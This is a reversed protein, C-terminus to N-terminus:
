GQGKTAEYIISGYDLTKEDTQKAHGKEEDGSDAIGRLLTSLTIDREDFMRNNNKYAYLFYTKQLRDYDNQRIKAKIHQLEKGAEYVIWERDRNGFLYLKNDVIKCLSTYAIHVQLSVCEKSLAEEAAATWTPIDMRVAINTNAPVLYLGADFAVINVFSHDSGCPRFAPIAEAVDCALCEGGQMEFRVITDAIEDYLFIYKGDYEILSYSRKADGVRMESFKGTEIDYFVLINLNCHLEFVIETESIKKAFWCLYFQSDFSRTFGRYRIYFHEYLRNDMTLSGTSIDYVVVQDYCCPILVLKGKIIFASVFKKGYKTHSVDNYQRSVGINIKEFQNERLDYIGIECASCPTFYLKGGYENISTYLRYSFLEEDPFCGIYEISGKQKEMRFLANYELSTFWLYSGDDYMDFIGINDWRTNIGLAEM